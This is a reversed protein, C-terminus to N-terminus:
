WSRDEEQRIHFGVLPCYTDWLMPVSLPLTQTRFITTRGYYWSRPSNYLSPRMTVAIFLVYYGGMIELGTHYHVDTPSRTQDCVNWFIIGFAMAALFHDKNCSRGLWPHRKCLSSQNITGSIVEGASVGVRRAQAKMVGTSLASHHVCACTIIPQRPDRLQRMTRWSQFLVIQQLRFTQM